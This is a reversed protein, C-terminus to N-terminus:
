ALAIDLFLYVLQAFNKTSKVVTFISLLILLSPINKVPFRRFVDVNMKNLTSAKM